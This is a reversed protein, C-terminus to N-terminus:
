EGDPPLAAAAGPLPAPPQTRQITALPVRLYLTVLWTMAIIAVIAAAATLYALPTGIQLARHLMTLVPGTAVYAPVITPDFRLLLWLIAASVVGAVIGVAIAGAINGGAQGLVAAVQLVIVIAFGIWLRRTWDRTVNAALYVVFLAIGAIMVIGLGTVVGGLVPSWLSAGSLSPWMPSDRAGINSLASQIGAVFLAAAVAAAWPPLVGALAHRPTTRAYWAGIGSTLAFLLAAVLAGVLAGLVLM